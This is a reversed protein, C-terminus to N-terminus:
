TLLNKTTNSFAEIITSLDELHRPDIKKIKNEIEIYQLEKDTYSSIDLLYDSTTELINCLKKLTTLSVGVNGSEVDALFRTSVNLKEALMERTIKKNKRLTKVKEGLSTNIDPNSSM